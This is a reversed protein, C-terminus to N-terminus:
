QQGSSVPLTAFLGEAPPPPALLADIFGSVAVPANLDLQVLPTPLPRDSAVAIVWPDYPYRPAPQGRYLEIKPVARDRFGEVLVVDLEDQALQAVLAALQPETPVPHEIVLASQRQSALLLQEIGAARLRYSDKGPQDLDFDDRAQKIVAVRRGRENLDRIVGSLLTTKGIGSPAAFGIVPVCANLARMAQHIKTMESTM